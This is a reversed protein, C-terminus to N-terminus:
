SPNGGKRWEASRSLHEYDNFTPEKGAVPCAEYPTNQQNFIRILNFLGQFSEDILDTAKKKETLSIIKCDDAKSALKWYVLDCIPASKLDKFGNKILILAELPLQPAYGSVVEKVSPVTGTKYDLIRVSGNKFLDIRDAKGTLTFPIGEVDFTVEGSAETLSQQILNAHISQNAIIFDATQDFRSLFFTQDTETMGVRSLSERMVAMLEAKDCNNPNKRIFAELADHVAVGYLQQREKTNLNKLPFLGLVYRAYIAYPNRMWMEIRTVSLKKPRASVPPCPAPPAITETKNPRDLTEAWDNKFISFPIQNGMLVAEMRSIFRSPITETGDTKKARTLYVRPSCFCHAFDYAMESIKIEPQPLLLDQRMKRNLWPGTEPVPPFVGENLGGIICIDAHHFRAEIPGLIDLRPHMGYSPRVNLGALLIEMIRGYFAPEIKGILDAQQVLNILFEFIVKGTDTGWLREAGTRDSSTALAEALRIHATLITKFPTLVNGNNFMECFPALDTSLLPTFATENLRAEKEWVKVQKRFFMPNQGDACLPHKLLSLLDIPDQHSLGVQAILSLFIGAETQLVPTGASDDLIINWRRMQSIVRRALARNPTVLAATQEPVELAGRLILAITTAEDADTDCDIRKVHSISESPIKVHQWQETSDAPALAQMMLLEKSLPFRSSQVMQPTKKLEELIQKIGYLYHNEPLSKLEQETLTTDLGEMLILGNERADIQALLRRVVPLGGDLGAAIIFDTTQSLNRTYSDILRIRRDAEDIMGKNALIKPWEKTIIDLFVITENWHEAFIPNQVLESLNKTPAEFQYFEDLVQGLSIAVKLAGEPTTINPIEACLKQLTLARELASMAPPIDEALNDLDYLPILKPILIPKQLSRKLFANKIIVAARRTPLIIQIQAAMLPNHDIKKLVIDVIKDALNDALGVTEIM